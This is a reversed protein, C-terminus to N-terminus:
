DDSGIGGSGSGSHGYPTVTPTGYLYQNNKGSGSDDSGGTGNKGSGNGSNDDGPEPTASQGETKQEQEGSNDPTEDESGESEQHRLENEFEYRFQEGNSSSNGELLRLREEITLRMQELVPDDMGSQQLQIILRLQTHLALRIQDLEGRFESDDDIELSDILARDLQTRLRNSLSDPLDEGSQKLEFAEEGRREAFKMQLQIKESTHTTLGLQVDESAIKVPYLFDGPNSEQALVTTAGVGSFLLIGIVGFTMLAKMMKKEKFLPISNWRRQRPEKEPSVSDVMKRAAILYESRTLSARHPDRVPVKLLTEFIVEESNNPKFREKM